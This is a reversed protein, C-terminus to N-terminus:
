PVEFHEGTTYTYVVDERLMECLKHINSEEVDLELTNAGVNFYEFIHGMRIM